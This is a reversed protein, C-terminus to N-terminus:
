TGADLALLQERLAVVRRERERLLDDYPVFGEMAKFWPLQPWFGFPVDGCSMALQLVRVAEEKRGENAALSAYAVLGSEWLNTSCPEDSSHGEPRRRELVDAALRSAEAERGTARYIRVIATDMLGLNRDRGLVPPLRQEPVPEASALSQSAEAYRGRVALWFAMTSRVQPDNAGARTRLDALLADLRAWNEQLGAIEAAFLVQATALDIGPRVGPDEGLSREAQGLDVGEWARFRYVWSPADDNANRQRAAVGARMLAVPFGPVIADPFLLLVPPQGLEQLTRLSRELEQRYAERDKAWVLFPLRHLAGPMDGVTRVGREFEARLNPDRARALNALYNAWTVPQRPDLDLARRTASASEDRRKAVNGLYVAYDHWAAANNPNLELARTYQEEAGPQGATRLLNAYAGHAESLDPDLSLAKHVVTEARRLLAASEEAAWEQAFIAQFVLSHALQAQGRAFDPDLKV